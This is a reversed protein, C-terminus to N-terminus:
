AMRSPIRKMALVGNEVVAAVLGGIHLEATRAQEGLALIEAVREGAQPVFTGAAREALCIVVLRALAAPLAALRELAISSSGGLEAAVLADLLETEERLLEATRLV